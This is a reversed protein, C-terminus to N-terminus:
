RKGKRALKRIADATQGTVREVDKEFRKQERALEAPTKGKYVRKERKFKM